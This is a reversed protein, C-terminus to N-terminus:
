EEQVSQNKCVQVPLRTGSLEIMKLNVKAYKLQSLGVTLVIGRGHFYDNPYPVIERRLSNLLRLIDNFSRNQEANNAKSTECVSSVNEHLRIHNLLHQDILENRLSASIPHSKSLTVNATQASNSLDLIHTLSFSSEKRRIETICIFLIFLVAHLFCIWRFLRYNRMTGISQFKM